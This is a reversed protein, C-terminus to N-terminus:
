SGAGSGSRGSWGQVSSRRMGAGEHASADGERVGDLLAERVRDPERRVPQPQARRRVRSCAHRGVRQADVARRMEEVPHAVGELVVHRPEVQGLGDATERDLDREHRLEGVRVREVEQDLGCEGLARERVVILEPLLQGRVEVDIPQPGLM